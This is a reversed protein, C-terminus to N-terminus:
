LRSEGLRLRPPKTSGAPFASKLIELYDSCTREWSFERARLRSAEGMRRVATKDFALRQLLITLREVDGWDFIAGNVGEEVLASTGGTPTVLVALGSAMAELLAVSMGENYSPLVFVDASAYYDAIKERAVYGHFHV